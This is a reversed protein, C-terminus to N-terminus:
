CTGSPRTRTVACIRTMTRTPREKLRARSSGPYPCCPQPTSTTMQPPSRWHSRRRQEGTATKATTRASCSTRAAPSRRRHTPSRASRRSRARRSSRVCIALISRAVAPSRSVSRGPPRSARPSRARTLSLQSARHRQEPGCAERHAISRFRRRIRLRLPAPPSLALISVLVGATLRGTSGLPVWGSGQKM